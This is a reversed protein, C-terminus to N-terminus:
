LGVGTVGVIHQDQDRYPQYSFTFYRLQEEGDKILMVPQNFFELTEGTEM